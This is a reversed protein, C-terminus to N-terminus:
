KNKIDELLQLVEAIAELFLTSLLTAVCIVICFILGTGLNVNQTFVILCIIASFYGLFKMIYTLLDFKNAVRNVTRRNNQISTITIKEKVNNIMKKMTNENNIPTTCHPCIKAKDSVDKGCVSCKILAM